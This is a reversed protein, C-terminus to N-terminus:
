KIQCLKVIAEKILLIKKKEENAQSLVERKETLWANEEFKRQSAIASCVAHEFLLIEEKKFFEKNLPRLMSSASYNELHLKLEM